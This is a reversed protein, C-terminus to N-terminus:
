VFHQYIYVKRCKSQWDVDFLTSTRAKNCGKTENSWNRDITLLSGRISAGGYKGDQIEVGDWVNERKKPITAQQVLATASIQIRSIIIRM